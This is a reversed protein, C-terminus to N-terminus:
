QDQRAGRQGVRTQDARVLWCADFAAPASTAARSAGYGCHAVVVATALRPDDAPAYGVFLAPHRLHYPLSHPDASINGKRSSRQATGTKGAITYPAGVGIAKATGRPGNVTMVM